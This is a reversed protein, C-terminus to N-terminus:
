YVQRHLLLYYFTRISHMRLNRTMNFPSFLSRTRLLFSLYSPTMFDHASTFNYSWANYGQTCIYTFPWIWARAAKGPSFLELVLHYLSRTTGLTLIPTTVFLIIGVQAPFRVGVTWSITVRSLQDPFYTSANPSVPRFLTVSSKVSECRNPARTSGTEAYYCWPQIPQIALTKAVRGTVM